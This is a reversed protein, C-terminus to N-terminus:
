VLFIIYFYIKLALLCSHERERKWGEREEEKDRVKCGDRM